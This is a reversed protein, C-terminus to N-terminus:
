AAAERELAAFMREVDILGTLEGDQLTSGALYEAETEQVSGPLPSVDLVEDVALGALRGDREAVVLRSPREEGQIGFVRALDFTPLVRGRLNLVGLVAPGCGPVHEVKALEGVELVSEVPLAYTEVGVRLRVHIESV